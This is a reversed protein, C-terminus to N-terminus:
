VAVNIADSISLFARGGGIFEACTLGGTPKDKRIVLLVRAKTYARVTCYLEIYIAFTSRKIDCVLIIVATRYLVAHYAMHSLINYLFAATHTGLSSKSGHHM